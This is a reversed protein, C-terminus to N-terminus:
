TLAADHPSSALTSKKMSALHSLRTADTVRPFLVHSLLWSDPATAATFNTHVELKLKFVVDGPCVLTELTDDVKGNEGLLVLKREMDFAEIAVEAAIEVDGPCVLTKLTDDVKGNEGLFEVVEGGPWCM